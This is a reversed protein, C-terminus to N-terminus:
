SFQFLECLYEWIWFIFISIQYTEPGLYKLYCIIVQVALTLVRWGGMQWRACERAAHADKGWVGAVGLNKSM